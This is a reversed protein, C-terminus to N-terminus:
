TQEVEFVGGEDIVRLQHIGRGVVDRAYVEHASVFRREEPGVGAIVLLVDSIAKHVIVLVDLPFGITKKFAVRGIFVLTLRGAAVFRAHYEFYDM